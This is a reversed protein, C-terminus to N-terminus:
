LDIIMGDYGVEFGAARVAEREPSDELLIPNSNNIHVLIKRLGETDRLRALTGHPGSLPLHGMDLATRTGIGQSPLEENSWFTGDLLVVDSAALRALLADDLRELAPVYTATRNTAPDRFTLGLALGGEVTERGRMYLPPDAPVVFPEVHLTSAQEDPLHLTRGPEMAGWHFGCYRELVDLIPYGATLAHRVAGTGFIHLPEGSERLIILGATHDIEADTLIVGAVPSSRLASDRPDRLWELQERVDPSANVLFWPGTAGRVAISSQRRPHARGGGERAARCNTCGCNWQPFGGGAAAGLVRLQM